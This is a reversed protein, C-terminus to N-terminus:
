NTRGGNWYFSLVTDGYIRDERRCGAIDLVAPEERRAHEFVFVGDPSLIRWNDKMLAILEEGWGLSYPPDAYIVGFSEGERALKSLARRVDLRVIRAREQFPLLAQFIERLRNSDTEVAVASAAGRALMALAVKGTGSFLDLVRANELRRSASLIDLLASLVKGSTPRAEGRVIKAKKGPM